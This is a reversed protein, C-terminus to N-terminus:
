IWGVLRAVLAWCGICFLLIASYVALRSLFSATDVLEEASRGQGGAVLPPQTQYNIAVARRAAADLAREIHPSRKRPAPAPPDVSDDYCCRETGLEDEHFCRGSCAAHDHPEAGRALFREADQRTAFTAVTHEGRAVRWREKEPLEPCDIRTITLEEM